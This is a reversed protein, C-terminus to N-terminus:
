TPLQPLSFAFTAGRGNINNKAWIKGGHAEIISKSIYLGLGIGHESKTAFKTFLRPMIESDIGEGDDKVAINWENVNRTKESLSVILSGHKTFKLANDLLNHVVQRIRQRDGLVFANKFRCKFSINCGNAVGERDKSYDDLLGNITVVLDFVDNRLELSNGDIRSVDLIDETLFKLRRANRSIISIFEQYQEINGKKSGLIDALGLIPQIPTRLEHAAMNVFENKMRDHLKLQEAVEIQKWLFELISIYSLAMHKSNSYIALGAADYSNDNTDDKTEIIFSWKRDIVLIGLSTQSGIDICKIEIKYDFNNTYDSNSKSQNTRRKLFQNEKMQRAYEQELIQNVTDKDGPILIRISLGKRASEDLLQISGSRVLRRFSNLTPIIGFIEFDANKFEELIRQIAKGPNRIIEINSPVVIGQDIEDLRGQADISDTWLEEFVKSFYKVYMPEDSILLIQVQKGREIREFTVAIEKNTIGFSMPPLNSTHRIKVGDQLFKRALDANYKNDINCIYRIGKHQGKMQKEILKRNSEVFYDQVYQLGGPASICSLVENSVDSFRNFERIIEEANEIIRTKHIVIGEELERIKQEAPIATKWLTDFIYQAQEVVEKVNSYIVQMLPTSEQLLTTAMYESESVAVGGKVGELHKLEDVLKILQKCYHVNDKTIETFARIKGGRKQIDKYGNKYEVVDVVISPANKDFFIDMKERVNSMFYVGRGVAKEVGYLIESSRDKTPPYPTTSTTTM